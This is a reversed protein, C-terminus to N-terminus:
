FCKLYLIMFFDIMAIASINLVPRKDVLTLAVAVAGLAGVV